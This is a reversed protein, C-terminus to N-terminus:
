LDFIVNGIACKALLFWAYWDMTEAVMYSVHELVFQHCTTSKIKMDRRM